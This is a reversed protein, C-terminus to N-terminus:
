GKIKKFPKHDSASAPGSSDSSSTAAGGSAATAGAGTAAATAGNKWKEYHELAKKHHKTSKELHQQVVGPDVNHVEDMMKNAFPVLADTNNRDWKEWWLGGKGEKSNNKPPLGLMADEVIRKVVQQLEELRKLETVNGSERASDILKIMLKEANTSNGM